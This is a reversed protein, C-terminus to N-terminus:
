QPKRAPLAKGRDKGIGRPLEDVLGSLDGWLVLAQRSIPGHLQVLDHRQWDIVDSCRGRMKIKPARICQERVAERYHLRPAEFVFGVDYPM